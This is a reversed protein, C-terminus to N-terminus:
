RPLAAPVVPSTPVNLMCWVLTSLLPSPPAATVSSAYRARRMSCSRASPRQRASLGGSDPTGSSTSVPSSIPLLRQRDSRSQPQAGLLGRLAGGAPRVEPVGDGQGLLLERADWRLGHGAREGGFEPWGHPLDVPRQVVAREVDRREPATEVRRGTMQLPEVRAPVVKGDAVPGGPEEEGEVVRRQQAALVVHAVDGLREPPDAVGM